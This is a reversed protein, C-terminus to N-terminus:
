SRYQTPDTFIGWDPKQKSGDLWKKWRSMPFGEAGTEDVRWLEFKATGPNVVFAFFDTVWNTDAFIIPQPIALGLQAAKERIIRHYPYASVAGENEIMLLTKAMNQLEYSTVVSQQAVRPSLKNYALMFNKLRRENMKPLETVLEKLYGEVKSRSFLPLHKYLLADVDDASIVAHGEALLGKQQELAKVVRERFQMATVRGPTQVLLQKVYVRYALPVSQELIQMLREVMDRDLKISEVFRQRPLFLHDRIYTYSYEEDLWSQCLVEAGPKLLFAHTPSHILMSRKPQKVFRQTVRSPLGKLTDIFFALLEDVEEVWRSSETPKTERRFYCSVLAHMNGGSTYVWPKKDIKDLHDLPNEIYVTQHAEAMRYFASDIFNSTKIHSVLATTIDSIEREIGKFQEDATIENETSAFFSGLIDIFEQPHYIMTWQATHTRGHTYLLRFGAPSDDYPGGKVDHMDADYVEQFYEQFLQMYKEILYNYLNALLQAKQHEQDRELQAARLEASRNQYDRRLFLAEQESGARKLRNEAIAVTQYVAEYREQLEHVIQNQYNLRGQIEVYLCHGIGGPQDYNLGLSSYLNWHSFEHKAEAFSATTFEWAKLLPNDAFRIFAHIAAKLYSKFQSCRSSKSGVAAKKKPATMLLGSHVMGQPRSEFDLLDEESIELHLLLVHKFIKECSTYFLSAAKHMHELARMVCDKASEARKVEDKEEQDLVGIIELGAQLGPSCWIPTPCISPDSSVLIPRRSDGVGWSPSLPVSHEVGGFTRRLRGTSLLTQIDKLFSHPQEDHVIIAPATAFCSGVSQRLYCLWASLAARRIHADQITEKHDLGVTERIILDAQPLGYPKSLGRLLRWVDGEKALEKLVELMHERRLADHQRKPGMSYLNASLLEIAQSLLQKDVTGEDTILIAAIERCEAVNRVSCSDQIGSEEVQRSIVEKQDLLIKELASRQGSDIQAEAEMWQFLQPLYLPDEIARDVVSNVKEFFEKRM